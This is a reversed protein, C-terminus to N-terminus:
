IKVSHVQRGKKSSKEIKYTQNSQYPDWIVSAYELTPRVLALYATLKAKTSALKLKRRLYWLKTEAKSCINDIHLNWSLNSSITVGLYKFSNVCTINRGDIEYGFSFINKTKNTLTIYSTKTYNIKMRSAACWQNISNLALNLTLQDEPKSIISYILCDDAFLRVTIQPPLSVAINNVYCLFLIPGLVSGQPVGSPVGLVDSKAGDIEM